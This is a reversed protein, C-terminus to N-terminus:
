QTSIPSSPENKKPDDLPTPPVVNDLDLEAMLFGVDELKLRCINKYTIPTMTGDAELYNWEEIRSALVGLGFGAESEVDSIKSIDGGYLEGFRLVVWAQDAEPLDKTSPLVLKKTETQIQPLQPM